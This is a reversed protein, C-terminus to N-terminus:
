IWPTMLTGNYMVLGYGTHLRASHRCCKLVSVLVRAICQAYLTSVQNEIGIAKRHELAEGVDRERHLDGVAEDVISGSTSDDLVAMTQKAILGFDLLGVQLYKSTNVAAQIFM